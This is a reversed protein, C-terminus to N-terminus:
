WVEKRLKFTKILLEHIVNNTQINEWEDFFQTPLFWTIGLQKLYRVHNRGVVNLQLNSSLMKM